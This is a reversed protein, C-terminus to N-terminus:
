TGIRKVFILLHTIKVLFTFYNFNPLPVYIFVRALFHSLPVDLNVFYYRWKRWLHCVDQCEHSAHEYIKACIDASWLVACCFLSFPVLLVRPKSNPVVLFIQRYWIAYKHHVYKWAINRMALKKLIKRCSWAFSMKQKPALPLHHRMLLLLCDSNIAQSQEFRLHWKSGLLDSYDRTIQVFRFIRNVFQLYCIELVVRGEVM